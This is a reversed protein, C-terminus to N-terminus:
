LRLPVIKVLLVWSKLTITAGADSGSRSATIHAPKRETVALWRLLRLNKRWEANHTVPTAAHIM